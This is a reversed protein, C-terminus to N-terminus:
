IYTYLTYYTYGGGEGGCAYRSTARQRDNQRILETSCARVRNFLEGYELHCDFRVDCVSRSVTSIHFCNLLYYHSDYIRVSVPDPDTCTYPYLSYMHFCPKFYKNFFIYMKYDTSLGILMGEYQPSFPFWKRTNFQYHHTASWIIGLCM